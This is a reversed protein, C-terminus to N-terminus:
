VRPLAENQAGYKCGGVWSAIFLLLISIYIIRKSFNM